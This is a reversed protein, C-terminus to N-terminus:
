GEERRLSNVLFSLDDLEPDPTRATYLVHVIADKDRLVAHVRHYTQMSAPPQFDYEVRVVEIGAPTELRTTSSIKSDASHSKLLLEELSDMSQTAAEAFTRTRMVVISEKRENNEPRWEATVVGSRERDVRQWGTPVNFSLTSLRAREVSTGESSCATLLALGIFALCKM